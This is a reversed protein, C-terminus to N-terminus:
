CNNKKNYFVFGNLKHIIENVVEGSCKGDTEIIIDAIEKYSSERSQMIEAIKEETMPFILPRITKDKIREFITKASAKLWIVYAGNKLNDRNEKITVAGGGTSMVINDYENIKEIIKREIKRFYGEGSKEIIVAPSLSYEFLIMDDSDLFMMDYKKAIEQGATSKYTGSMGILAINNKVKKDM